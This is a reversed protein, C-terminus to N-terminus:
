KIQEHYQSYTRCSENLDMRYAQSAFSIYKANSQVSPTVSLAVVYHMWQLM